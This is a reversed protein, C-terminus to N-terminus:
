IKMKWLVESITNINMPRVVWVKNKPMSITCALFLPRLYRYLKQFMTSMLWNKRYVIKTIRLIMSMNLSPVSSAKLRTIKYSMRTVQPKM